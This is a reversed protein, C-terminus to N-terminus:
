PHGGSLAQENESLFTRDPGLETSLIRLKTRERHFISDGWMGSLAIIRKLIFHIDVEWSYGMAGHVQLAARAAHDAADFAALKAHSVRSRSYIDSQAIQAAAAYVVPKAFEIKVKATALLHKVAQFTGIAKGFQQREKSFEVAIDIARQALGLGQAASFLAGREFLLAAQRDADAGEAIKTDANPQWDVNAIDRLPDVSEVPTVHVEDMDILHIEADSIGLLFQSVSTDTTIKNQPHSISVIGRGELITQLAENARSAKTCAALLPAVLGAQDILPDPIASYGCAEAILTLDSETLGLGNLEESVLMGTVGLEAFQQWLDPSHKKNESLLKRLDGFSYNDNLLSHISEAMMTQTENFLFKM